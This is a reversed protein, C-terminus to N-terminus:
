KDIPNGIQGFMNNAMNGINQQLGTQTKFLSQQEPSLTVNSSPLPVKQGNPLTYTNSYDWTQSGYPTNYNANSMLQQAIAPNTYDTTPPSPSSGSLMNAQGLLPSAIFGAAKQFLNSM